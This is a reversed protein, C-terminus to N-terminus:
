RELQYVYWFNTREIWHNFNFHKMWDPFSSYILKKQIGLDKLEKANRTVVLCIRGPLPRILSSSDMVEIKLNKRKYFYIDLARRYPNENIVYLTTPSPYDRYIKKFLNIETDAPSFAVIILLALNAAWFTKVFYRVAKKQLLDPLWKQRLLDVSQIIIIPLFGAIPFLFRMEKHGILFHVVVFPLLTWTLIDKRKFVCFLLISLIYVLSFPPIAEFFVGKFYFWWAQRGFGSVKDLLLNQQFYNWFTMTWEGYFWRDLLFGIGLVVFIGSCLFLIRIAPEKKIVLMWSIMGLILFGSHFRFLFSFGLILGALFFDTLRIKQKKYQLYAFAIIFASGAWSGSSFRVNFFVVFWLFFSLFLFWKKLIRNVIGNEYVRYILWMGLFSFAATMLRLIFAIFFPDPVGFLGFFRYVLVVMVPQIAPRMQYQFEWPLNGAATLNLKLGAFELIQFHEDPHLYGASFFATVSLILASFFYVSRQNM